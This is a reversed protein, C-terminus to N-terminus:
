NAQLGKQNNIKRWRKDNLERWRAKLSEPAFGQKDELCEIAYELEQLEKNEKETMTTNYPLNLQNALEKQL